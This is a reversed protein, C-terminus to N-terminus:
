TNKPRYRKDPLKGQHLLRHCSDSTGSCLILTKRHRAIMVKQWHELHPKSKLDKLKRVHHVEVPLDTRGCYECEEAEMRRILESRSNTLYLTSPLKDVEDKPKVMHKLQFVKSEKWDDKFRSRHIYENGRKLKKIVTTLKSNHKAALVAQRFNRVPPWTEASLSKKHRNLSVARYDVPLTNGGRHELEATGKDDPDLILFDNMRVNHNILSLVKARNLKLKQDVSCGIM